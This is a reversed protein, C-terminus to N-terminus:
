PYRDGSLIRCGLIMAGAFLSLISVQTDRLMEHWWIGRGTGSPIDVDAEQFSVGMATFLIHTLNGPIEYM